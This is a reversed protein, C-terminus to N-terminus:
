FIINLFVDATTSSIEENSINKNTLSSTRNQTDIIQVKQKLEGEPITELKRKSFLQFIKSFIKNFPIRKLNQIYMNNMVHTNDPYPWAELQAYTLLAANGTYPLCRWKLCKDCQILTPVAEQHYKVVEYTEWFEKVYNEIRADSWYQQIYEDMSKSLFHNKKEDVFSRRNHTPELVMSPKGVVDHCYLLEDVAIFLLKEDQIVM